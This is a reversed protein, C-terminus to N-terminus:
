SHLSAIVVMALMAFCVFCIFAIAGIVRREQKSRKEADGITYFPRKKAARDVIDQSTLMKKRIPYENM